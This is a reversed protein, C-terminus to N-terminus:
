LKEKHLPSCLYSAKRLEWAGKLVKKERGKRSPSRLSSAAAFTLVKEREALVKLFNKEDGGGSCATNVPGGGEQLPTCLYSAKGEKCAGPSFKKKEAREASGGGAPVPHLLVFIGRGRLGQRM